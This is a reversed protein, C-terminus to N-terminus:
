YLYCMYFYDRPIEFRISSLILTLTLTGFDEASGHNFAMEVHVVRQHPESESLYDALWYPTGELSAMPHIM